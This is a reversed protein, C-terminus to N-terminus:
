IGFERRIRAVITDVDAEGNFTLTADVPEELTALQSELLNAKAVHGQRATLRARLVAASNKLYAFRVARLDGVLTARHADTLASCALVMSERREAARVIVDHLASLWGTRDRDTLPEGHALKVLNAHPHFEDADVFRWGLSAALAAGVTSKGAGAPGMVVIVM